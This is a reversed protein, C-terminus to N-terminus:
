KARYLPFFTLDKFQKNDSDIFKQSAKEVLENYVEENHIFKGVCYDVVNDPFFAKKYKFIGDESGYGGGLVFYDIGEDRAWNILAYKLFDNARKKFAEELTGGLFSFISNDSQMVMEVSVVMENDYVFCFACLDGREKAFSGFQDLTFYYNEKANNRKMTDIYVEYFSKLQSYNLDIGKIIRAELNERKARRVNKMVKKEFNAIQSDYDLIKGKINKMIPFIGKDFISYDSDLSLRLFSSIVNDDLHKKIEKWGEKIIEIPIDNNYILGSYGYPSVFDFFDTSDIRKLYGPLMVKNYDQNYKLCILNEFGDSFSNIFELSDYPRKMGLSILSKEYKDRGSATSLDLVEIM